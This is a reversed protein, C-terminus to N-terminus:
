ELSCNQCRSKGTLLKSLSFRHRAFLLYLRDAVIRVGPWRLPWIMWGKGVLRWAQYTVDLGTILTTQQQRTWYAHLTQMAARQPIESFEQEFVPQNIDVLRIRQQKDRRKLHQMEKLCLPCQGDYFVVLYEGTM